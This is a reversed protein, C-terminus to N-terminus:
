QHGAPRRTQPLGPSRPLDSPAPAGTRRDLVMLRSRDREAVPAQAM